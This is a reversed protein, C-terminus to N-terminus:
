APLFWAADLADLPPCLAACCWPQSSYKHVIPALLGRVSQNQPWAATRHLQLLCGVCRAMDRPAYGSVALLRPVLHPQGHTHVALMLAGAALQSPPFELLSYDLLLLEQSRPLAAGPAPPHAAPARLPWPRATLSGRLRAHAAAPPLCAPGARGRVPQRSVRGWTQLRVRPGCAGAPGVLLYVALAAAPPALGSLGQADLHLFSFGTQNTIHFDLSDLLVREMRLLDQSTFCNAAIATLQEVSPHNV